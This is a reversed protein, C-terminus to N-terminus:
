RIRLAACNTAVNGPARPRTMPLLPPRENGRIFSTGAEPLRRDHSRQCREVADDEARVGIRSEPRDEPDVERSRERARGDPAEDPDPRDLLETRIRGHEPEGVEDARQDADARAVQAAVKGIVDAP